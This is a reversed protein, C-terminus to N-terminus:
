PRFAARRARLYDRAQRVYDLLVAANAPETSKSQNAIREVDNVQSDAMARMNAANQQEIRKRNPDVESKARRDAKEAQEELAALAALRM